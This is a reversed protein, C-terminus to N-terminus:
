LSWARGGTTEELSVCGIQIGPIPDYALVNEGIEETSKYAWVTKDRIEKLTDFVAKDKEKFTNKNM